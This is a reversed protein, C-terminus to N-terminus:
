LVPDIRVSPQSLLSWIFAYIIYGLLLVVVLFLDLYFRRWFPVHRPRAEERRFSVIDMNTARYLSLILAILAAGVAVLAYWKLDLAVSIPHATIVSIVSQNAPSLLTQAITRVLLIALLPGVLLAALGLIFGQLSFAGFIHWRTAGRSRLTAIIGAQWEVLAGSMLIVLFLMLALTIFLLFTVIIQGFSGERLNNELTVSITGFMNVFVPVNQGVESQFTTDIDTIQQSLAPIDNADLHALDFPYRLFFVSSDNFSGSSSSSQIVAIKPELAQSAALVNYSLAGEHKFYYRSILSVSSKSFPDAVAWFADNATKPAIIGVVRLQWVESGANVPFRGQVTSGVHLGLSNAAVQWLAIEMTGDTTVQPLRGQLVTAHKAAEVSDYGVLDFAAPTVQNHVLMDLAPTQVIVEPATHLYTGLLGRQLTSDSVQEIQRLQDQTPHNSVADVTIYAGDPAGVLQSRVSARSSVLLFLPGSCVLVIMALMALWTVLLFRWVRRFRWRALKAIAPWLSLDTQPTLTSTSSAM